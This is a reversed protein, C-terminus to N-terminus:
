VIKIALFFRLAQLVFQPLLKTARNPGFLQWWIGSALGCRILKNSVYASDHSSIFTWLNRHNKKEFFEFGWQARSLV